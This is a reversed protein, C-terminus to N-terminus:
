NCRVSGRVEPRLWSTSSCSFQLQCKSSAMCATLVGNATSRPADVTGTRWRFPRCRCRSPSSMVLSRDCKSEPAVIDSQECPSSVSSVALIQALERRHRGPNGTQRANETGAFDSLTASIDPGSERPRPGTTSNSAAARQQTRDIAAALATAAACYGGDMTRQGQERLMTTCVARRNLPATKPSIFPFRFAVAGRCARFVLPDDMPIRCKESRRRSPVSTANSAFTGTWDLESRQM